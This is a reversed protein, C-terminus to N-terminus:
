KSESLAPRVASEAVQRGLFLEADKDSWRALLWAEGARATFAFHDANARVVASTDGQPSVTRGMQLGSVRYDLGEVKIVAGVPLAALAFPTMGPPLRAAALLLWASNAREPRELLLWSEEGSTLRAEHRDFNGAPSSVAEVWHGRVTYERDGIRATRGVAVELPRAALRAPPEVLRTGPSCNQLFMMSVWVLLVGGTVITKASVQSLSTGGSPNDLSAVGSEMTPLKFATTVQDRRLKRGRYFEIEDGTWSAVYMRNDADANFYLAVDGVTVDEPAEGEIFHVRSQDVLTVKARVDDFMVVDGLKKTAAERATFPRQLELPLFLKWAPGSEEDEYVLIATAGTDDRLQYENWYYTEGDVEVSMVLRGTVTCAHGELTGSAGVQLPTPNSTSM